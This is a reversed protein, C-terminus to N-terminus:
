AEVGSASVFTSGGTVDSTQCRRYKVGFWQARKHEIGKMSRGIKSSIDKPTYGGSLMTKAKELEEPTWLRHWHMDFRKGWDDLMQTWEEFQKQKKSSRLNGRFFEQITCLNRYKQVHYQWCVDNENDCNRKRCLLGFGFYNKIQELIGKEKQTICFLPNKKGRVWKWSFSGEGEAFGIIWDRSLEMRMM